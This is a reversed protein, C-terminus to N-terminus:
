RRAGSEVDDVGKAGRRLVRGPLAGNHEGGDIVVEGNVIVAQIGRAYQHPKEYTSMADITQPDFLTLDAWYGERILGREVLGLANASGGTMKYIAQPLPLLGLDRVYHGLVRAFTGYFRPHPKGQGTVGYPALSTGDSGVLMTPSRLITQVDDEAMSTILIRTHGQDEILYDCVADLPDSRRERAIAGMTQGAYQPQHPSIAIRVDDWSAIRGFNNFGQAEIDHRLRQRTEPEALRELMAAMGGAQVWTPLLNRLPNTAATYPYQDCDVAVGRERAAEIEGLLESAGGWNDTGSLKLHAIQVHIGCSEGVAIAERVADFVRNAEDRVHSSYAGGHRRLVHGLTVMEESSAYGGPTTFLGSSLGIAGAQLAEELMDQMHRLEDDSPARDDTGMAMLRLTHHGAQMITNVSTAPFADMYEAFSTERFDLWPASAALYDRLLEAKGPLAPAVSFGCNGVVETTVGQRIKGEARPNIPLTFDSHTHIDIFGPALVLGAADIVRRAQRGTETTVACIRGDRIGVDGTTGPAGSGDMIQAGRILLEDM